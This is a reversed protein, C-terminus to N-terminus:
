MYQTIIYHNVNFLLLRVEVSRYIFLYQQLTGRIRHLKFAWQLITCRVCCNNICCPKCPNVLMRDNNINMFNCFIGWMWHVKTLLEVNIVDETNVHYCLNYDHVHTGWVCSYQSPLALVLMEQILNFKYIFGYYM